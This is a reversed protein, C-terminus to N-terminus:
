PLQINKVKDARGYGGINKLIYKAVINDACQYGKYFVVTPQQGEIPLVYSIERVMDAEVEVIGTALYVLYKM